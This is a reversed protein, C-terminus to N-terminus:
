TLSERYLSHDIYSIAGRISSQLNKAETSHHETHIRLLLNLIYEKAKVIEEKNLKHIALMIRRLHQVDHLDVDEQNVLIAIEESYTQRTGYGKTMKGKKIREVKNEINNKDPSSKLERIANSM